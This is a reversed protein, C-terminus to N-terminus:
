KRVDNSNASINYKCLWSTDMTVSCTCKDTIEYDIWNIEGELDPKLLCLLCASASSSSLEFKQLDHDQLHGVGM